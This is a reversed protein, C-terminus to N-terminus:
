LLTVAIASVITIRNAEVIVAITLNNSVVAIDEAVTSLATTDKM